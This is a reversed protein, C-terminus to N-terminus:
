ENNEGDILKGDLLKVEGNVIVTDVAGQLEKGIFPSNHSKSHIQSEEFKWKRDPDVLIMDAMAGKKISGLELNFIKAPESSLLEVMRKKSLTGNRCFELLLPLSTQLGLIGVAAEDFPVLKSDQEHPAHDSAVVDITGDVIGEVLAQRIEETRLPPSMKYNTDYGSVGEETLLLHHPTVECTVKIGDNKARRVLEVGRASSIHCIHVRGGTYHALEIDRAVMVDEAVTPVGPLGLQYSLASEHMAGCCSLCKDEEHCCIVADHLKCWELARRMLGADYVPEGDDSFAACGSEYLESLPAMQKGKLGASVAGIPFVRALNAQEAALLIQRTVEQSDNVPSTNPMCCVSTYGGAIAARGGTTITEKWEFGPERLHVHLDILGPMLWRGAGDIVQVEDLSDFSGPADVAEVNSGNILVDKLEETDTVPDILLAGKILIKKSM